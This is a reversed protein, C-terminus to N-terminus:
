VWALSHATWLLLDQVQPSGGGRLIAAQVAAGIAIAKDLNISKCQEKANLNRVDGLNLEELRARLLLYYGIGAFVSDIEVMGAHVLFVGLERAPVADANITGAVSFLRMEALFTRELM